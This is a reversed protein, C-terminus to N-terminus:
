RDNINNIIHRMKENRKIDWRWPHRLDAVAPYISRSVADLFKLLQIDTYFNAQEEILLREAQLENYIYNIQEIAHEVPGVIQNTLLASNVNDLARFYQEFYIKIAVVRPLEKTSYLLFEDVITSNQIAPLGREIDCILKKYFIDFNNKSLFINQNTQINAVGCLGSVFQESAYKFNEYVEYQRLLEKHRKNESSSIGVIIAIMISTLMFNRLDWFGDVWSQYKELHIGIPIVIAEFIAVCIIIPIYKKLYMVIRKCFRLFRRIRLFFGQIDLQVYTSFPVYCDHLQYKFHMYRKM